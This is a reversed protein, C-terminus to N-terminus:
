SQLAIKGGLFLFSPTRTVVGPDQQSHIQRIVSLRVCVMFSLNHPQYYCRERHSM